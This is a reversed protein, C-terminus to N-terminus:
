VYIDWNQRVFKPQKLVQIGIASSFVADDFCGPAHRIVGDDYLIFTRMSDLTVNSHIGYTMTRVAEELDDIMLARSRVNTPYGVQAGMEGDLMGLHHYLNKYGLTQMRIIPGVGIGDNEIAVLANNFKEGYKMLIDGYASPPWKGYIHGVQEWNDRRIIDASCYKGKRRGMSVDASIVYEGDKIAEKFIMVEPPYGSLPPLIHKTYADLANQSFICGQMRQFCSALDSPYDRQFKM